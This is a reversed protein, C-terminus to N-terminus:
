SGGLGYRAQYIRMEHGATPLTRMEPSNGAPDGSRQQGSLFPEVQTEMDRHTEGWPGLTGCLEM